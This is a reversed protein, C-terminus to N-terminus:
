RSEEASPLPARKWTPRTKALLGQFHEIACDTSAEVVAHLKKPHIRGVALGSRADFTAASTEFVITERNLGGFTEPLVGVYMRTPDDATVSMGGCGPGAMPAKMDVGPRVGLQNAQNGVTPGDDDDPLMARFFVREIVHAEGHDARFAIPISRRRTADPEFRLM